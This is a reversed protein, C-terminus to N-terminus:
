KTILFHARGARCNEIETRHLPWIALRHGPAPFPALSFPGVFLFRQLRAFSKTKNATARLTASAHAQMYQESLISGEDWVLRSHHLKGPLGLSIFPKSWPSEHTVDRAPWDCFACIVIRASLRFSEGERAGPRARVLLLPRGIPLVQITM